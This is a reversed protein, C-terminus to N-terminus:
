CRWSRLCRPAHVYLSVLTDSVLAKMVLTASKIGVELTTVNSLPAKERVMGGCLIAVDSTDQARLTPEVCDEPATLVSQALIPSLQTVALALALAAAALTRIACM